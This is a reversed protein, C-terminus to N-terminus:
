PAEPCSNPILEFDAREDYSSYYSKDKLVPLSQGFYTNLIVRFTNVPSISPYLHDASNTGPLYYANLIKMRQERNATPSGHDGQVVIIPAVSSGHLINDVVKLVENGIFTAQAMYGARKERASMDGTDLDVPNGVADFVYPPHPSVIHAYVFYDGSYGPINRLTTLVNLTRERYKGNEAAQVLSKIALDMPVRLLTTRGFLIEFESLDSFQHPLRPYLDADTWEIWGFGTPFAVVKYGQAEFFTRVASHLRLKDPTVNSSPTPLSQLYDYNLSSTLSLETQAYNSQSCEAVYFGREKLGKIFESNDYGLEEQLADQRGYADLIIYYVDPRNSPTVSTGALSPTTGKNMSTNLTGPVVILLPYVLLLGGILNLWPTWEAPNKLRRWVWYIGAALLVGWLVGLTRHRFPLVGALTVNKLEAYVQGYSFFLLLVLTALLAARQWDRLLLRALCLVIGALLLSALLPRWIQGAAIQHFNHAALALVPYAAFLFPYLPVKKLM